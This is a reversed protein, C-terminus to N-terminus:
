LLKIKNLLIHVYALVTIYMWDQLQAHMVHSPTPSRMIYYNYDDPNKIWIQEWVRRIRMRERERLVYVGVHVGECVM